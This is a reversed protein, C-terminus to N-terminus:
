VWEVGVWLRRFWVVDHERLCEQDGHSNGVDLGAEALLVEGRLSDTSDLATVGSGSSGNSTGGDAIKKTSGVRASLELASILDDGVKTATSIGNSGGLAEDCSLLVGVGESTAVSLVDAAVGAERSGGLKPTDSGQDVRSNIDVTSGSGQALM